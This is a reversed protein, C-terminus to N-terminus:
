DEIATLRVGGSGAFSAATSPTSSPNASAPMLFRPPRSRMSIRSAGPLRTAPTNVRFPKAAAGTWTQRRRSAPPPRDACQEDIGAVRVASGALRPQAGRLAGALRDRAREPAGRVLHQRERGAHDELRQRHLPDLRRQGTGRSARRRSVPAFRGVAMMVVSVTGFAAERAASISPRRTVTVPMALPTPMSCGFM